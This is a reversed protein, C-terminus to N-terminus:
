IYFFSGNIINKGDYIYLFSGIITYSFAKQVLLKTYKHKIKIHPSKVPNKTIRPNLRRKQSGYLKHM